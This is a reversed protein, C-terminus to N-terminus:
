TGRIRENRWCFSVSDSAAEPGLEPSFTDGKKRQELQDAQLWLCYDNWFSYVAVKKLM